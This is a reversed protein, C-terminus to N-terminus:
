GLPLLVLGYIIGGAVFPLYRSDDESALEMVTSNMIIAGSIFAVLLALIHHPLAFLQGVGWGIIAAGALVFRGIREYAAGHEKRMTHDVALFHFIIAVAYLPTSVSAEGLHHVLLYAMLWVYAAFGGIQLKFALDVEGVKSVETTEHLRDRLHDLGYFVLFGVLSLYYIAMGEYRLTISVSEVFARRAEHLEPMLHIFVYAASMGAGFSIISHPNKFIRRLPRVRNGWLFTASFLLAAVGTEIIVMTQMGM